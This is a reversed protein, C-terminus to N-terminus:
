ARSAETFRQRWSQDFGISDLYSDISGYKTRIYALTGEMISGNATAYCSLDVKGNFFHKLAKAAIEVVCESRGYDDIIIDDPTGSIHQLLMAIVGTRDKGLTCHVMVKPPPNSSDLKRRQEIHVTIAQLTNFIFRDHALMIEYLGVLGAKKIADVVLGQQAEPDSSAKRSAEPSVWNNKVYKLYSEESLVPEEFSLYLRRNKNIYEATKPDSLSLQEFSGGPANKLVSSVKEKNIEKPLRLDIWLTVENLYFSEAESLLLLTDDDGSIIDAVNDPGASRYLCPVNRITRFNPVRNNTTINEQQATQPDDASSSLSTTTTEMTRVMRKQQLTMTMTMTTTSKFLIRM